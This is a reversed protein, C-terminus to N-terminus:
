ALRERNSKMHQHLQKGTSTLRRCKFIGYTSEQLQKTHRTQHKRFKIL